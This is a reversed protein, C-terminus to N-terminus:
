TDDGDEVHGYLHAVGKQVGVAIAVCMCLLGVWVWFSTVAAPHVVAAVIFGIIFVVSFALGGERMGDSSSVTPRGNARKRAQDADFHTSTENSM